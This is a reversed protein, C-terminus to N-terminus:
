CWALDLCNFRQLVLHAVFWALVAVFTWFPTNQWDTIFDTIGLGFLDM